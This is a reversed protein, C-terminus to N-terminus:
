TKNAVACYSSFPVGEKKRINVDTLGISSVLNVVDNLSYFNFINKDLNLKSMQKDDRFGIALRGGPKLVRLMESFYKEPEKWFYITNSSCLKDFSENDFPLSSCDGQQLKVKGTAIYQKNVKGAQKLMVESFDIGEVVGKVTISAMENILKGSGFGVELVKDEGLFVSV